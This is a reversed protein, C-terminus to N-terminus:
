WKLAAPVANFYSDLKAYRNRQRKMEAWVTPHPTNRIADRVIKRENSTVLRRARDLHSVYAEFATARSEVLFDKNLKLVDITYEARTYARTGAPALPVILFTDKLDMMLFRLPNGRSPDILAPAGSLPPVLIAAGRPRAVELVASNAKQLIGWKNNKPGNCIGCSYLYNSWAFCLEPFLDKPAFHEVEDAPADECYMCRRAGHCMAVLTARVEAFVRDGSTNRKKFLDKAAAVRAAYDAKGDILKQCGALDAGITGPLLKRRIRIM